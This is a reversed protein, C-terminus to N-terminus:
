TYTNNYICIFSIIGGHFEAESYHIYLIIIKIKYDDDSMYYRFRILNLNSCIYLIYSIYM